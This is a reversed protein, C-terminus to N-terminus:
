EHEGAGLELILRDVEKNVKKLIEKQIAVEFENCVYSCLHTKDLERIISEAGYEDIKAKQKYFQDKDLDVPLTLLNEVGIKFLNNQENIVMKRIFLLGFTEEPKKTDSDYLLVTKGKLSQMNALFFMRAQNLATDGTNEAGGNENIRGIWKFEIKDNTHQFLEICKKFYAEDTEGEVFITAKEVNFIQSVNFAERVLEEPSWAYFKPNRSVVVKGTEDKQLVIVKDENRNANHIIFPSHTAIIIQSTQKGENNTFLKKFFSLVKLQWSPHLSIEPEDILIAAGKSSEKDKLLFSGRFVIQKEGSSLNEIGMERGSEEFIIKKQDNITEIRKYKKSPFMFEFATTFRKMRVDIQTPDIQAGINKRAWETLSLADLSQIDILLQTIDSALNDNSKESQINMRDINKSTVTNIVKPTFNIEVDSFMTKLSKKNEGDNFLSGYININEGDVTMASIIIQGWNGIINYDFIVIMINSRIQKTFNQKFNDNNKFVDIEGDDFEIEFMRKENRKQSDLVHNSFEFITNLILSKGVGNEGAIIITNVTKGQKDTFDLELTGLVPHNEFKIKRIRM